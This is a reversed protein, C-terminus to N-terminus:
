DHKQAEVASPVAPAAQPEYEILKPPASKLMARYRELGSWGFIGTLQEDSMGLAICRRLDELAADTHSLTVEANINLDVGSREAFGLRSLMSNVAKAHDPHKDNLILNKAAQITPGVLGRFETRAAEEIAELVHPKRMNEFGRVNHANSSTSYGALAAGDAASTALGAGMIYAFRRELPTCAMAKPGFQVHSLDVPKTM